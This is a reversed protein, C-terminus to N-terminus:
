GSTNRDRLRKRLAPDSYSHKIEQDVKQSYAVDELVRDKQAEQVDQKGKRYALISPVVTKLITAFIGLFKELFAWM